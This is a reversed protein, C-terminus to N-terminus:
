GVLWRIWIIFFCARAPTRPPTKTRRVPVIIFSPHISSSQHHISPYISLFYLNNLCPPSSCSTHVPLSSSCQMLLGQRRRRVCAPLCCCAAACHFLSTTKADKFSFLLCKNKIAPFLDFQQQQLEQCLFSAYKRKNTKIVLREVRRVQRCEGRTWRQDFPKNNQQRVYRTVNKKRRSKRVAPLYLYSTLPPLQHSHHFRNRPSSSGVTM